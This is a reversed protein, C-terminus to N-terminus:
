MGGLRQGAPMRVGHQALWRRAAEQGLYRVLVTPDTRRLDVAVLCDLSNAFDPDVNFGLMRGGLKLYQRVLVPLGQGSGGLAGMVADLDGPAVLEAIERRLLRAGAARPLPHRPRVLGALLPDRHHRRLYEVALQLAGPDHRGSISVAGFLSHCRPHRLVWAGIAKWLLLLPGFSRQYDAHVWSRGVELAPGLLRLFLDGYDFLTSTYLGSRGREALIREVCGARYAGAIRNDRQNWLVLHDYWADFRDLDFARGTGEGVARFAM